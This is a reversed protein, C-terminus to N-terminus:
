EVEEEKEKEEKTAKEMSERHEKERSRSDCPSFGCSLIVKVSVLQRKDILLGRSRPRIHYRAAM